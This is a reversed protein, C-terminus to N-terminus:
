DIRQDARYHLSSNHTPATGINCLSHLGIESLSIIDKVIATVTVTVTVTVKDTTTVTATATTTATATATATARIEAITTNRFVHVHKDELIFTNVWMIKKM